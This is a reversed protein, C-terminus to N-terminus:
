SLPKGQPWFIAELTNPTISDKCLYHRAGAGFMKEIYLIDSHFSVAIIKANKRPHQFDMLRTLDIGNVGPMEIDIFVFDFAKQEFLAYGDLGNTAKNISVPFPKCVEVLLQEFATLFTKSDDIILIRWM